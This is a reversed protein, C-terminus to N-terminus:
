ILILTNLNRPWAACVALTANIRERFVEEVARVGALLVVVAGLMARLGEEMVELVGRVSTVLEAVIQIIQNM